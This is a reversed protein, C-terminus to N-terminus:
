KRRDAVMSIAAAARMKAREQRGDSPIGGDQAGNFLPVISAGLPPSESNEEFGSILMTTTFASNSRRSPHRSRKRRMDNIRTWILLRDGLVELSDLIMVLPTIKLLDVALNRLTRVKRISLAGLDHM